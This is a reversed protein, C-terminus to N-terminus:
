RSSCATTSAASRTSGARSMTSPVADRRDAAGARPQGPAPYTIEYAEKPFGYYDYFMEPNPAGILTAQSEEWHASVVLIFDPRHLQAPLRTMFDIMARHSPDGLIPLPGGGHSFYVIQANKEHTRTWATVESTGTRVRLLATQYTTWGEQHVQGDIRGNYRRPRLSCVQLNRQATKSWCNTSCKIRSGQIM